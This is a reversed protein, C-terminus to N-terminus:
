VAALGGLQWTGVDIPEDGTGGSVLSGGLLRMLQLM